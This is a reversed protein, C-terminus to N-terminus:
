QYPKAIVHINGISRCRVVCAVGDWDAFHELLKKMKTELADPFVLTVKANAKPIVDFHQVIVGVL